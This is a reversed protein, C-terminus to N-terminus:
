ILTAESSDATEAASHIVIIHQIIILELLLEAM